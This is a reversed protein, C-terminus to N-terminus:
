VGEVQKNGLMLRLRIPFLYFFSCLFRHLRSSVEVDIHFDNIIVPKIVLREAFLVLETEVAIRITNDYHGYLLVTPAGEDGPREALLFPPHGGETMLEGSFGLKSLWNKLWLACQVCDRLHLPDAGITPFRLLDFYEAQVAADMDM